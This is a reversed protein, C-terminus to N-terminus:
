LAKRELLAATQACHDTVVGELVHAVRLIPEVIDPPLRFAKDAEWHDSGITYTTVKKGGPTLLQITAMVRPKDDDLQVSFGEIRAKTISISLDKM